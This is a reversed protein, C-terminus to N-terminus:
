LRRFWYLDYDGSGPNGKGNMTGEVMLTKIYREDDGSADLTEQVM